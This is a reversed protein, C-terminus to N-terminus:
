KRSFFSRVRSLKNPRRPRELERIVESMTPREEPDTEVCRRIIGRLKKDLVKRIQLLRHELNPQERICMECLLVGFSYVDVKTSQQAHVDRTEPAGYIMSGPGVTMIQRVFNASGYDSLKAGWCNDRRWLLVNSSSIDRHVIPIRKNLHLYNLGRAIDLALNIIEDDGLTRYKLLQRLTMDLLETVFLPGGDNDNTAGIFQLLNPHRCCLAINMEREFMKITHRSVIVEHLEKVAVQCGRFRGEYVIGWAGQGLVRETLSIEERSIVWDAQQCSKYERLEEQASQLRTQTSENRERETKM